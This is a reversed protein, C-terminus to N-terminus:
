ATKRKVPILSYLHADHCQGHLLLRNRLTGEFEAGANMAVQRSASNKVSMIIELRLVALHRFVFDALGLTAETAFGKGTASTRIWYGLNAVPHEDLMNIGCGGLLHQDTHDFISFSFSSGANWQSAAFSLWQESESKQYGPHCWPLFPYVEKVSSRAAEFLADTFKPDCRHMVLRRTKFSHPPQSSVLNLM